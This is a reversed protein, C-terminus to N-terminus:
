QANSSLAIWKKASLLKFKYEKLDIIVETIKL